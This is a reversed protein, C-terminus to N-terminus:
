LGFELPSLKQVVRNDAFVRIDDVVLAVKSVGVPDIDNHFENGSAIEKSCYSLFM